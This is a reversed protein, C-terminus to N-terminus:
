LALNRRDLENAMEQHRKLTPLVATAFALINPDETESAADSYLDLASKHSEEVLDAYAEDFDKGRKAEALAALQERQEDDLVKPLAVDKSVALEDLDISMASYERLMEEAFLRINPNAGYTRALQAAQIEFNSAAAASRLFEGDPRTAAVASISVVTLLLAAARRLKPGKWPHRM